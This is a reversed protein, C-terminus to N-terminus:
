LRAIKKTNRRLYNGYDEKRYKSLYKYRITSFMSVIDYVQNLDLGLFSVDGTMRQMEDSFEEETPVKGLTKILTKFVFYPNIYSSETFGEWNGCYVGITDLLTKKVDKEEIDLAKSIDSISTGSVGALM